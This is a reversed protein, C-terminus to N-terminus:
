FFFSLFNHKSKLWPNNLFASTKKFVYFICICTNIIPDMKLFYSKKQYRYIIYQQKYCFMTKKWPHVSNIFSCWELFQTIYDKYKSLEGSEWSPKWVVLTQHKDQQAIPFTIAYFNYVLMSIDKEWIPTVSVLCLWLDTWLSSKKSFWFTVSFM